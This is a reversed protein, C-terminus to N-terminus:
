GVVFTKDSNDHDDKLKDMLAEKLPKNPYEEVEKRVKMKNGYEKSYIHHFVNLNDEIEYWIEPRFLQYACRTWLALDQCDM